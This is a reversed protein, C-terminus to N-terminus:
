RADEQGQLISGALDDAMIARPRPETLDGWEDANWSDLVTGDDDHLSIFMM